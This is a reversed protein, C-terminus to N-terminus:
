KSANEEITLYQNGQAGEVVQEKAGPWQVVIREVMQADGLGFLLRMDHSSLYSGGSRLERVLLRGNVHVEVRAGVGDRNSKTGRLVIGIWNSENGGDNRLLAAHQGSNNVAIDIDGDNDFDAFAAGRSVQVLEFGPGADVKEVFTGTGNNELLQNRQAYSSAHDIKDVNDYVHGNAVFLDLDGDNDFDLFGTGFGLYAMSAKNIGSAVTADAFFGRGLNRYLTNSEWQFNTVFLDLLGDGDADAMDVGMGAEIGGEDNLSTGSALGKEVFHHGDNRYLMNPTMDNALYLDPDGDGDIDGFIVGLEKGNTSELGMERTRDVFTWDSQAGENIYLRDVQGAFKRPDCYLREESNGVRCIVPEAIPYEVYNGVYLDLDGDLDVDAFAASTGWGADAVPMSVDAFSGDGRNNYLRNAGFNTVYLDPDGDNDYDGVVAGMGFSTDAVAAQQAVPAFRDGLNRYLENAVLPATSLGPIRGGNVMYLDLRGDGDYDLFAAGAGYTEPLFRKGQAGNEHVFDVGLVAAVDVFQVAADVKIALACLCSLAIHCAWLRM